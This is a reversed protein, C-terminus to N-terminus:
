QQQIFEPEAIVEFRSLSDQMLQLYKDQEVAKGFLFEITYIEEGTEDFYNWLGHSKNDLYEGRVKLTNDAYYLKYPGNLM